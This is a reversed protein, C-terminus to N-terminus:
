GFFLYALWCGTFFFETLGGIEALSGIISTAKRTHYVGQNCILVEYSQIIPSVGDLSEFFRYFIEDEEHFKVNFFETVRSHDFLPSDNILLKDLGIFNRHIPIVGSERKEQNM